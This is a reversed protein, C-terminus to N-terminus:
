DLSQQLWRSVGTTTKSVAVATLVFTEYSHLRRVAQEIQDFKAEVSEMMVLVEDVRELAGQWWFRSAVPLQRACAILRRELLDNVIAEAETQNACTLFLIM